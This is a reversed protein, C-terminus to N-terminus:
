LRSPVFAAGESALPNTQALPTRHQGRWASYQGRSEFEQTLKLNFFVWNHPHSDALAAAAAKTKKTKKKKTTTSATSDSGLRPRRAAAFHEQWAHNFKSLGGPTRVSAFFVELSNAPQSESGHAPLFAAPMIIARADAVANHWGVALGAALGQGRCM